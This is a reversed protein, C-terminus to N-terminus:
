KHDNRKLTFLQGHSSGSCQLVVLLQKLSELSFYFTKLNCPKIVHLNKYGM